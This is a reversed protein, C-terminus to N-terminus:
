CPLAKEIYSLNYKEFVRHLYELRMKDALTSIDNLSVDDREAINELTWDRVRKIDKYSIGDFRSTLESILDDTDLEDPDFYVSLHNKVWKKIEQSHPLGGDMEMRDALEQLIEETTFEDFGVEFEHNSTFELTIKKTVSM